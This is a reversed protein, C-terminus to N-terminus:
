EANGETTTEDEDPEIGTDDCHTCGMEFGTGHCVHCPNSQRLKEADAFAAAEEARRRAAWAARMQNFQSDSLEAQFGMLHCAPTENLTTTMQQNM